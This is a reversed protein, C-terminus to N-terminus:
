LLNLINSLLFRYMRIMSLETAFRIGYQDIERVSSQGIGYDSSLLFIEPLIINLNSIM